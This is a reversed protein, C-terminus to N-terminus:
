GNGFRVMIRRGGTQAMGSTVREANVQMQLHARLKLLEAMTYSKLRRNGIEYEYVGKDAKGALLKDVNALATELDSRADIATAFSPKITIHGEAVTQVRGDPHSMRARYAYQGQAYNETQTAAINIHHNANDSAGILDIATDRNRLIYALTWGDSSPYEASAVHWDITDGACITAPPQFQNLNM